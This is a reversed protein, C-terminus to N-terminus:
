LSDGVESASLEEKEAYAARYWEEMAPCSLLHTVYDQSQDSISIRYTQFRTAVPAFMCDVISFDGFLWQGNHRNLADQWMADIRHIDNECAMSYTLRRRARCNMPLESRLSNFGAHMEACYARALARDPARKPWADGNLFQENIYECIALSEWISLEEHRLVPVQFTPSHEALLESTERQGLPIRLEEFALKFHTLLLWPRLSWSSYNKNGIILQM